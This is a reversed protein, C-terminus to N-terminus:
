QIENLGISQKKYSKNTMTITTDEVSIDLYIPEILWEFKRNVLGRYITGEKTAIAFDGEFGKLLVVENNKSNALEQGSTDILYFTSKVNEVYDDSVIATDSYYNDVYKYKPKVKWKNNSDIFGYLGTLLSKAIQLGGNVDSEAIPIITKGFYENQIYSKVIGDKTMWITYFELDNVNVEAELIALLYEANKESDVLLKKYEQSQGKLYSTTIELYHDKKNKSYAADLWISKTKNLVVYQGYTSTSNRNIENDIVYDYIDNVYGYDNYNSIDDNEDFRVYISNFERQAGEYQIALNLLEIYDYSSTSYTELAEVLEDKMENLGNRQEFLKEREKEKEEELERLFRERKQRSYNDILNGVGVALDTINKVLEADTNTTTSNTSFLNSYDTNQYSSTPLENSSSSEDVQATNKANIADDQGEVSMNIANQQRNRAQIELIAQNRLSNLGTLDTTYQKAEDILQIKRENSPEARIQNLYDNYILENQKQKEYNDAKWSLSGSYSFDVFFDSNISNLNDGHRDKSVITLTEGFCGFSFNPQIQSGIATGYSAGNATNYSTAELRSLGIIENEFNSLGLENPYYNRGNRRYSNISLGSYGLTMTINGACILYGYNITVVGQLGEQPEFYVTKSFPGATQAYGVISLFFAYLVIRTKM